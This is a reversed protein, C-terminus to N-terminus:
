PCRVEAFDAGPQSETCTRQSADVVLEMADNVGVQYRDLNPGEADLRLGTADYVAGNCSERFVLTAGAARPSFGARYEELLSPLQPDAPPVPQVRCRRGTAERNAQDLDALAVFSGDGLRVLYFNRESVYEVSGTAYSRYDRLVLRGRDAGSDLFVIVFTAIGVMVVVALVL